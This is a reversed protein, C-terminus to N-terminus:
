KKELTYDNDRWWQVTPQCSHNCVKHILYRWTCKCGHLLWSKSKNWLAQLSRGEQFHLPSAAYLMGAQMWGKVLCPYQPSVSGWAIAPPLERNWPYLTHCWSIQIPRTLTQTSCDWPRCLPLTVGRAQGCSDAPVGWASQRRCGTSSGWETSQDIPM